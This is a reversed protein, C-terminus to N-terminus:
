RDNIIVETFKNKTHLCTYVTKLIQIVRRDLAKLHPEVLIPNLPDKELSTRMLHSLKDPGIYLKVLKLFTSYKILCCQKLPALIDMYDQGARGFRFTFNFVNVLILYANWTNWLCSDVVTAVDTSRGSQTRLSPLQFSRIWRILDYLGRSAFVQKIM